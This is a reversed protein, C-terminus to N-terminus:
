GSRLRALAQRAALRLLQRRLRGSWNDIMVMDLQRREDLEYGHRDLVQWLGVMGPHLVDIGVEAGDEIMEDLESQTVPRPGVLRMKGALVLALQPLEDVGMSRMWLDSRGGVELEVPAGTAVEILGACRRQNSAVAATAVKPVRLPSRRFGVREHLVFLPLQGRVARNAIAVVVIGLWLPSTMAVVMRWFVSEAPSVVVPRTADSSVLSEILEEDDTMEREM